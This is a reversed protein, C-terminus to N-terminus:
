DNFTRVACYIRWCQFDLGSSHIGKVDIVSSQVTSKKLENKKCHINRLEKLNVTFDTYIDPLM